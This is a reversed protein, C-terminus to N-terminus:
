TGEDGGRHVVGGRRSFAKLRSTVGCVTDDHPVM